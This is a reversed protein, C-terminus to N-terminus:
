TNFMLNIALTKFREATVFAKINDKFCFIIKKEPTFANSYNFVLFFLLVGAEATREETPNFRPQVDTIVNKVNVLM